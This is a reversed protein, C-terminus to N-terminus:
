WIYGWSFTLAVGILVLIVFIGWGIALTIGTARLGTGLIKHGKIFNEVLTQLKPIIVKDWVILFGLGLSITFIAISTEM